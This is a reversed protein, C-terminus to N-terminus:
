PLERAGMLADLVQPMEDRPAGKINLPQPLLLDGQEELPAPDLLGGVDESEFRAVALDAELLFFSEPLDGDAIQKGGDLGAPLDRELAEDVGQAHAVDAFCGRTRQSATVSAPPREVVGADLQGFAIGLRALFHVGHILDALRDDIAQCGVEGVGHVDADDLTQGALDIDLLGFPRCAARRNCALRDDERPAEFRDRAILGLCQRLTQSRFDAAAYRLLG